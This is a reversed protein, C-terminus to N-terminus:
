LIINEMFIVKARKTTQNLYVAIMHFKFEVDTKYKKELLYTQITRKLRRCKLEHVNEEPRYGDKSGNNTKKV